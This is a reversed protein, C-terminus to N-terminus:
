KSYKWGTEQLTLIGEAPKRLVADTVEGFIVDHDGNAVRSTIRCELAAAADTLFPMGHSSRTFTRGGLQDGVAVPSKLFDRAIATGGAPLLNVSFYGCRVAAQHMTSDIEMAAAIILPHFSVQTIWDAVMARPLDGDLSAIVYLGYPVRQLVEKATTRNLEVEGPRV